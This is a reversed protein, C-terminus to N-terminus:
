QVYFLAGTSCRTGKQVVQDLLLNYAPYGAVRYKIMKGRMKTGKKVSQRSEQDIM